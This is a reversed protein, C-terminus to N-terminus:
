TNILNQRSDLSTVIRSFSKAIRWEIDEEWYIICHPTFSEESTLSRIERTKFNAICKRDQHFFAIKLYKKSKGLIRMLAWGRWLRAPMVHILIVAKNGSISSTKPNNSPKFFGCPNWIYLHNSKELTSRYHLALHNLMM